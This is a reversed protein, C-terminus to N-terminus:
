VLCGTIVTNVEVRRASSKRDFLPGLTDTSPGRVCGRVRVYTRACVCVVCARMCAHVSAGAYSTPGRIRLDGPEIGPADRKTTQRKTMKTRDSHHARKHETNNPTRKHMETTLTTKPHRRLEQVKNTMTEFQMLVNVFSLSM